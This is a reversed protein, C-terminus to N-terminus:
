RGIYGAMSVCGDLSTLLLRLRSKRIAPASRNIWWEFRNPNTQSYGFLRPLAVDRTLLSCLCVNAPSSLKAGKDINTRM